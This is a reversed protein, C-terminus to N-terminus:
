KLFELIKTYFINRIDLDMNKLFGHSVIPLELFGSEVMESYKIAEDKLYDNESTIVFLNNMKEVTKDLLPFVLPDKYNKKYKLSSNYYKKLNCVLNSNVKDNKDINVDDFYNGSLIPNIIICKLKLDLRKNIGLVITAGVSDGVLTIHSNNIKLNNFKDVLYKVCSICDDLVDLYRKNEDFDIAIVLRNTKIALDECINSYHNGCGSIFSIGHVYIIIDNLQSVREPYFVKVPVIKEDLVIKYSSINRKSITPHMIKEVNSYLKYEFKNELDNIYEM